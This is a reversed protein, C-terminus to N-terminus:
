GGGEAVAEVDYDVVGADGVVRDAGVLERGRAEITGESDVRAADPEAALM